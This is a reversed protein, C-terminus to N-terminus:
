MGGWELCFTRVRPERSVQNQKLKQMMADDDGDTREYAQGKDFSSSSLGDDGGGEEKGGGGEGEREGEREVEGDGRGDGELGGVLWGKKVGTGLRGGGVLDLLDFEEEWDM